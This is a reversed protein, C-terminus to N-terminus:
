IYEDEDEDEDDKLSNFISTKSEGIKSEGIKSEGIKAPSGYIADICQALVSISEGTKAEDAKKAEAMYEEYAAAEEMELNKMILDERLPGIKINPEAAKDAPPNHMKEVREELYALLGDFFWKLDSRWGFEFRETNYHYPKQLWIRISDLHDPEGFSRTGIHISDILPDVDMWFEADYIRFEIRFEKDRDMVKTPNISFDPFAYFMSLTKELVERIDKIRLLM